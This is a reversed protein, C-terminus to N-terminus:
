QYRKMAAAFRSIDSGPYKEQFEQISNEEIENRTPKDVKYFLGFYGPFPDEALKFAASKDTVDHEEPILNYEGGKKRNVENYRGPYFEVCDSLLHIASFGNHDLGLSLMEYIHKPESFMTRAVFSAGSALLMQEVNVPEDVSGYPDTKSKFGIPSTPSTQKKTLAYVSNDMIVCVMNTNRRATHIHHNGGISLLDGDGGFVFVNLDKRSLAIGNAIPLARGHVGHFGYGNIFYPIRSSCGIGSIAVVNQQEFGRDRVLKYFSSLLSFFGCGACWTPEGGRINKLTVQEGHSDQDTPPKVFDSM